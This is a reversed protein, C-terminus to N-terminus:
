DQPDDRWREAQINDSTRATVWQTASDQTYECKWFPADTKLRDMLFECAAFADSRHRSATIVLVIPETPKLLGYRHILRVAGLSFKVRAVEVLEKLVRETMGPYHELRMARLMSQSGDPNQRYERVLGVFSCVAGAQHHVATRLLASLEESADFPTDQVRVLM